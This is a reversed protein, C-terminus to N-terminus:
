RPGSVGRRHPGEACSESGGRGARRAEGGLSNLADGVVEPHELLYNRVRQEFEDQSMDAALVASGLHFGHSKGFWVDAIGLVLM